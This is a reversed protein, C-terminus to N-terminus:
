KDGFINQSEEPLRQYIAMHTANPNKNKNKLKQGM